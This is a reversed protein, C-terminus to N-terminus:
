SRKERDKPETLHIFLDQLAVPGLDLGAARADRRREASLTQNVTASKTRGLTQESLVPMGGVFRDVVEVPGTIATGRERLQDTEEQVLLQGRDMILVQEFLSGFEEILHTSLIVTRPYELYDNLVEEYFGYRSPADMGLYAEDFITLPCRSALAITVRAASRKGLSLQNM